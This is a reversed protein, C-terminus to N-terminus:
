AVASDRAPDPPVLARVFDLGTMVGRMQRHDACVIRRARTSLSFGAARHLPTTVPLCLLAQSMVQEIPTGPPRARAELAEVQTFIGIAAEDETVVLGSIHARELKSVAQELTGGVDISLVPSTMYSSLPSVLQDDLVVRMLEKTGLVGVPRGEDLVFLRHVGRALMQRAALEVSTTPTVAEVRWTMADGVCVPPLDLLTPRGAARARVHGIRLLDSRSVVGAALHDRGLVLLSSIGHQRMKEDCAGLEHETTVTHVEALAYDRALRSASSVGFTRAAPAGAGRAHIKAFIAPPVACRNRTTGARERLGRLNQLCGRASRSGLGTFWAVSTILSRACLAQM